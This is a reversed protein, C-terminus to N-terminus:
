AGPADQYLWAESPRLSRSRGYDRFDFLFVLPGLPYLLKLNELRPIISVANGHCWVMVLPDAQAEVHWSFLRTGDAAQFWVDELPL